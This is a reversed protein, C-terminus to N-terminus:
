GEAPPLGYRIVYLSDTECTVELVQNVLDAGMM